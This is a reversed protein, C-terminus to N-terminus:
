RLRCPPVYLPGRVSVPRALVSDISQDTPRPRLKNMHLLLLTDLLRLEVLHELQHLAHQIRISPSRLLCRRKRRLGASQHKLVVDTLLIHLSSRTILGGLKLITDIVRIRPVCPYTSQCMDKAPHAKHLNDFPYISLQSQYPLLVIHREDTPHELVKPSLNITQNFLCVMCTM